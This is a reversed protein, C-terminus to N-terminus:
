CKAGFDRASMKTERPCHRLSNKAAKEVDYGCRLHGWRTAEKPTSVALEAEITWHSFPEILYGIVEFSM